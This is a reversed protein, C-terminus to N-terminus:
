MGVSSLFGYIEKLIRSQQGYYNTGVHLKRQRYDVKFYKRALKKRMDVNALVWSNDAYQYLDLIAYDSNAVSEALKKNENQQPMFASLMILADPLFQRNQAIIETIWACSKGQCIVLYYGPSSAALQWAADLRRQIETSIKKSGEPTFIPDIYFSKLQLNPNTKEAVETKPDVESETQQESSSPEDVTGVEVTDTANEDTAPTTEEEIIQSLDDPMTLLLSNWGYDTLKDYLGSIAAQKHIPQEIDPVIIATGKTLGATQEKFLAIFEQDGATLFKIQEDAIFHRIDEAHQRAKSIPPVYEAANALQMFLLCCALATTVLTVITRIPSMKNNKIFTKRDKAMVKRM